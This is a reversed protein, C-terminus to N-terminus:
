TTTHSACQTYIDEFPNYIQVYESAKELEIHKLDHFTIFNPLDEVVQSSFLFEYVLIHRLADFDSPSVRSLINSIMVQYAQL